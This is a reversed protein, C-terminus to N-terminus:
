GFDKLKKEIMRSTMELTEPSVTEQRLQPDDLLAVQPLKSDPMESFLPKQREKAVRVSPPLEALVPEIVVPAPPPHVILEESREEVFVEERERVALQGLERDQAEEKKERRSEVLSYLFGGIREAARPWSFNFVWSVGVLGLVIAVLGAGAFGMWRVSWPGLLQGMAGGSAGPLM